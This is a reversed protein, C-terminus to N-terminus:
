LGTNRKTKESKLRWNRSIYIYSVIGFYGNIATLILVLLFLLGFDKTLILMLINIMGAGAVFSNFYSIHHNTTKVRQFFNM